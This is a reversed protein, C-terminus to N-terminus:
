FRVPANPTDSCQPPGDADWRGPFKEVFKAFCYKFCQGAFNRQPIDAILIGGPGNTRICSGVYWCHGCFPDRNLSILNCGKKGLQGFPDSLNVPNSAVYAYANLENTPRSLTSLPDESIFRGKSPDYYRARYYYLATEPDWDRGTFAYGPTSAGALPNGWPDYQRTV